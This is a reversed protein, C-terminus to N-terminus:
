LRRRMAALVPDDVNRIGRDLEKLVKGISPILRATHGRTIQVDLVSREVSRLSELMAPKLYPRYQTVLLRVRIALQDLARYMDDGQGNKMGRMLEFIHGCQSAMFHVDNVAKSDEERHSGESRVAVLIVNGALVVAFTGFVLEIPADIGAAGLLAAFAVATASAMGMMALLRLARRGVSTGRTSM